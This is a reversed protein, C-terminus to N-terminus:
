RLQSRLKQLFEILKETGLEGTEGSMLDRVVSPREDLLQVLTWTDIQLKDLLDLLCDAVGHHLEQLAMSTDKCIAHIDALHERVIARDEGTAATASAKGAPPFALVGRSVDKSHFQM